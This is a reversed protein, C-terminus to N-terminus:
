LLQLFVFILAIDFLKVQLAPMNQGLQDLSDPRYTLGM